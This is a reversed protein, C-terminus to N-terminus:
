TLEKLLHELCKVLDARAHDVDKLAEARLSIATKDGFKAYVSFVELLNLARRLKDIRASCFEADGNM